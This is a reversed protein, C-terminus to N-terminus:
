RSSRTGSGPSTGPPSGMSPSLPFWRRVVHPDAHPVGALRGRGVVLFVEDLLLLVLLVGLSIAISIATAITAAISLPVVVLGRRPRRREGRCRLSGMDCRSERRQPSVLEITEFLRRMGEGNDKMWRFLVMLDTGISFHRVGLDLYYRAADLSEIEARPPIGLRLCTEIVRREM